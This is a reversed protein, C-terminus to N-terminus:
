DDEASLLMNIDSLDLSAATGRAGEMVAAIMEGKKEGIALVGEELTGKAIVRIATITADRDNRRLRAIMQQEVTPNWWPSVIICVDGEPLDLGVGGVKLSVLLLPALGCRFSAIAEDRSDRRMTGHLLRHAYGAGKFEQALIKLFEVWESAVVVSKGQAQLEACIRTIYDLKASPTDQAIESSKVLGPHSAIQRLRSIAALISIQNKAVGSEAILQRVKSDLAARQAEYVVRQSNCLDVYQTIEHIPPLKNGVEANTRSLRFPATMKGLLRLREAGLAEDRKAPTVFVRKFWSLDRLLGPVATNMVAWLDEPRNQLATASIVIKQKAKLVSVARTKSAKPNRLEHGEDCAVIHWQHAFFEEADRTLIDYTTLVVDAERALGLTGKRKGDLYTSMKMKGIFKEKESLWKTVLTYPVVVLSPVSEKVDRHLWLHAILQATKGAAMEDGVLCGLGLDFRQKIWAVGEVQYARLPIELSALAEDPIPAPTTRLASSIRRLDDAGQISLDQEELSRFLNVDFRSVQVPGADGGGAGGMELLWRAVQKIRASPLALYAGSELRHYWVGDEDDSRVFDIFRPQALATRLMDILSIEHEGIVTKLEVNYWGAAVDTLHATWAESEILHLDFGPSFEIRWGHAILQPLATRQFALADDIYREDGFRSAEFVVLEREMAQDAGTMERVTQIAAREFAADRHLVTKQDGEVTSVIEGGGPLVRHGLYDFLIEGRVQALGESTGAGNEGDVRQHTMKLVPVPQVVGLDTVTVKPLAPLGVPLPQAGQEDLISQVEVLDDQTLVIQQRLLDHVIRPIENAVPGITNSQGDFYWVPETPLFRLGVDGLSQGTLRYEGSQLPAWSVCVERADGLEIPKAFDMGPGILRRTALLIPFVDHAQTGRLPIEHSETVSLGAIFMARAIADDAPANRPVAGYAHSRYQGLRDAVCHAWGKEMRVTRAFGGNKLNKASVVSVRDADSELIYFLTFGSDACEVKKTGSPRERHQQLKTVLEFAGSSLVTGRDAYRVLFDEMHPRQVMQYKVFSLYAHACKTSGCSCRGFLGGKQKNVEFSTRILAGSERDELVALFRDSGNEKIVEHFYHDRANRIVIGLSPGCVWRMYGILAQPDRLDEDSQVIANSLAFDNM